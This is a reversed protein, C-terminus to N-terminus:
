SAVKHSLKTWMEHARRRVIRLNEDVVDWNVMKRQALPSSSGGTTASPPSNWHDHVYAGGITLLVGLMLGFLVRM